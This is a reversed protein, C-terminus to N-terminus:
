PSRSGRRDSRNRHSRPSRSQRSRRRWTPSRRPMTATTRRPHTHPRLEERRFLHLEGRRLAVRLREGVDTVWDTPEDLTIAAVVDEDGIADLVALDLEGDHPDLEHWGPELPSDGASRLLHHCRTTSRVM